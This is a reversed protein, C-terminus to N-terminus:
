ITSKPTWIISTACFDIDLCLSIRNPIDSVKLLMHGKYMFAARSVQDLQSFIPSIDQLIKMIPNSREKNSLAAWGNIVAKFIMDAYRASSLRLARSAAAPSVDSIQSYINNSREWIPCQVGRPLQLTISPTATSLIGFLAFPDLQEPCDRAIAGNTAGDMWSDTYYLIDKSKREQMRSAVNSEAPCIPIPYVPSPVPVECAALGLSTSAGDIIRLLRQNETRLQMITDTLAATTNETQLIRIMNELHDTHARQRERSNKQAMRDAERKRQRRLDADNRHRKALKATAPPKTSNNSM